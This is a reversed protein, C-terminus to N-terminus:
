AAFTRGLISKARASFNHRNNCKLRGLQAIKQAINLNQMYFNIKDILDPIDKYTELQKSVTFYKKLDEKEDTLLFGGSALVEFARYNLSSSGQRTINLNIKSSNYIKSLEEETKIFGKWSKSYINLDAEDLLNQSKIEDVSQLFASEKCFINLKGKFVKILDCLIQQRKESLPEGVFTISHEYGSFETSYKLPSAALPLHFSNKFENVFERDWVFITADMKHLETYLATNKGLASESKPEDAFYFVKSLDSKKENIKEVIKKCNEDALYSYDYGFVMDPNFYEVDEFTLSDADKLLVRCKNMEFGSAFSEMILRGAIGIPSLILIKKM